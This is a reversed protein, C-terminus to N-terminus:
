PRAGESRAFALICARAAQASPYRYGITDREGRNSQEQFARWRRRETGDAVCSYRWQVYYRRGIEVVCLDLDPSITVSKGVERFDSM